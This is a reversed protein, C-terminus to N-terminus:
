RAHHIYQSASSNVPHNKEGQGARGRGLDVRGQAPFIPLFYFEGQGARGIIKCPLTCPSGASNTTFKFFAVKSNKLSVNKTQILLIFISTKPTILFAWGNCFSQINLLYLYSGCLRNRFKIYLFILCFIFIAFFIILLLHYQYTGSKIKMFIGKLLDNYYLIKQTKQNFVPEKKMSHKVLVLFNERYTRPLLVYTYFQGCASKSLLPSNLFFVYIFSM